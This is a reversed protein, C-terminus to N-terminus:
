RTRRQKKAPKEPPHMSVVLVSDGDESETLKLKVYWHSVHELGYRAMVEPSLPCVYADFAGAYPAELTVTEQFHEVRLM